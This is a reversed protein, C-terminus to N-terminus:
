AITNKTMETRSSSPVANRLFLVSVVTDCGLINLDELLHNRVNRLIKNDKDSLTLYAFVAVNFM